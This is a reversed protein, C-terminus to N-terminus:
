KKHKQGDFVGKFMGIPIFGEGDQNTLKDKLEAITNCELMKVYTYSLNSNFNLDQM